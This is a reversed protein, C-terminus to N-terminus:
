DLDHTLLDPSEGNVLSEISKTVTVYLWKQVGGKDSIRDAVQMQSEWYSTELIEYRWDVRNDQHDLCDGVRTMGDTLTKLGSGVTEPTEMLDVFSTSTEPNNSPSIGCVAASLHEDYQSLANASLPVTDFGSEQISACTPANVPVMQHLFTEFTPDNCHNRMYVPLHPAERPVNLAFWRVTEGLKVKEKAIADALMLGGTGHTILVARKMKITDSVKGKKNLFSMVAVFDDQLTEDSYSRTLTNLRVYNVTGCYPPINTRTTSGWYSDMEDLLEPGNPAEVGSGHIFVCPLGEHEYKYSKEGLRRIVFDTQYNLTALDSFATLDLMMNSFSTTVLGWMGTGTFLNDGSVVNYCFECQGLRVQEACDSEAMARLRRRSEQLNLTESPSKSLISLDVQDCTLDKPAKIKISDVQSKTLYAVKGIMAPGLFSGLETGSTDFCYFYDLGEWVAHILRHSDKPCSLKQYFATDKEVVQANLITDFIADLHPMQPVNACYSETREMTYAKSDKLIHAITTNGRQFQVKADFALASRYNLFDKPVLVIDTEQFKGDDAFIGTTYLTIRIGASTELMRIVDRSGNYTQQTALTGAIVGITALLALGVGSVAILAKRNLKRPAYPETNKTENM